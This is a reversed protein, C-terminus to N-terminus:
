WAILCGVHLVYRYIGNHSVLFNKDDQTTPASKHLTRCNLITSSHQQQGNNPVVVICLASLLAGQILRITKRVEFFNVITRPFTLIIWPLSHRYVTLKVGEFDSDDTTERLFGDFTWWRICLLFKMVDNGSWNHCYLCVQHAETHNIPVGAWTTRMSLSNSQINQKRM